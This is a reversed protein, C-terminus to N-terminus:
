RENKGEKVSKIKSYVTFAMVGCLFVVLFIKVPLIGGDDAPTFQYVYDTEDLTQAIKAFKVEIEANAAINTLEIKGDKVEIDEGNVTVKDLKYGEEPTLDASYNGGNEIEVTTSGSISGKGDITVTIRYRDPTSLRFLATDYAEHDFTIENTNMSYYEGKNVDYVAYNGNLKITKREGFGSYLAVYNANSFIVDNSNESYIHVGATKLINRLLGVPLNMAGSYVSTWEGMDKVALGAYTTRDAYYGLKEASADDVYLLPNVGQTSNGYTVGKLGKTLPNDNDSIRVNIISSLSMEKVNIGTLASINDTGLTLGDSYGCAYVWVVTHNKTKIYKDIAASEEKTVEIPSLMVYVKYSDPVKGDTLDSMSYTDYGAGMTNLSKRQVRYLYNNFHYVANFGSLTSYAYTEEGVIVAVENLNSKNTFTYSYDYEKKMDYIIQYFQEEGLWNGRMDFFWMGVGNLLGQVIDRKYQLVTERITYTKGTSIGQGSGYQFNDSYSTELSTRHDIEAIYMKGHSLISDIMPMYTSAQGLYRESYALPSAFFDIYESNLLRNFSSHIKGNADSGAQAWMYGNFAGLIKENDTLTKVIEAYFLLTDAGADSLFLNFDIIRQDRQPDYFIKGGMGNPDRESITPLTATDFTVKEDHWVKRLNAQTVYKKRLYNKFGNESAKSYDAAADLTGSEIVM